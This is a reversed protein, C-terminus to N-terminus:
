ERDFTFIFPDKFRIRTRQLPTNIFEENFSNDLLDEPLELYRLGRLSLGGACVKSGIVENKELVIVSKGSGILKEACRLGGPGAGVIVVDFSEM